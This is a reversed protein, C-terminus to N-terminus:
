SRYDANISVYEHSLDTTWLTETVDGRGLQIAITFESEAFVAAGAEETYSECRGGNEVIQVDNLYIQV